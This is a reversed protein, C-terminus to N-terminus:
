RWYGLVDIIIDASGGQAGAVITVERSASIKLSVGNALTQGSAFWNIMSAPHTTDGGPNICFNNTAVTNVVTVNASIATAGAPVVNTTIVSGTSADHSDAVSVTRNGGNTIPGHQAYASKRSDYARVPAIAHFTGASNSSAIQRWNADASTGGIVCYWLAGAADAHLDGIYYYDSTRTPPASGQPVVRISARDGQCEIATGGLGGQASGVATVGVVGQILAATSGSSSANIAHGTGATTVISDGSNTSALLANSFDATTVIGVGNPSEFYGAYGSNSYGRVGIGGTADGYVGQGSTATGRVGVNTPGTTALGWVGYAYSGGSATAYIAHKADQTSSAHLADLAITSEALVAYDSGSSTGHFTGSATYAAAPAASQLLVAGGALAGAAVVGATRLAARRSVPEDAADARDTPTPATGLTRDRYDELEARIRRAEALEAQLEALTAEHESTETATM